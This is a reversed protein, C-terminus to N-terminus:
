KIKDIILWTSIKDYDYSPILVTDKKDIYFWQYKRHQGPQNIARKILPYPQNQYTFELKSRHVLLNETNIKALNQNNGKIILHYSDKKKVVRRYGQNPINIYWVATDGPAYLNYVQLLEDSHNLNFPIKSYDPLGYIKLYQTVLRTHTLEPFREGFSALTDKEAPSLLVNLWQDTKKPNDLELKEKIQDVQIPLNQSELEKQQKTEKEAKLNLWFPVMFFAIAVGFFFITLLVAKIITAPQHISQPPSPKPTNPTSISPQPSAKRQIPPQKKKARSRLKDYSAWFRENDETSFKEWLKHAKNDLKSNKQM